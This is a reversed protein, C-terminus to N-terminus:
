LNADMEERFHIVDVVNNLWKGHKIMRQYQKEKYHLALEFRTWHYVIKLWEGVPIEGTEVKRGLATMFLKREEYTKMYDFM